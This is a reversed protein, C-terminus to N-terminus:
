INNNYKLHKMKKKQRRRKKRPRTHRKQIKKSSNHIRKNRQVM